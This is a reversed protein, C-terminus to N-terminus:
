GEIPTDQEVAIDEEAQGILRQTEAQEMIAVNDRILDYRQIGILDEVMKAMSKSSVHPAIMQGVPSNFLGTLNQMMQARAAFHRAGVPRLSGKATIDERTISIFREVGLDDDMVRVVDATDMNRRAVELMANLLPELFEVEFHTVKAQFIRGAANELTQVEHATKEGPTRIGMAQKPAGAFEEMMALLRDIQMDANLATTDPVLMQVDSGEMDLHIETGPQWNFPEVEGFVKLPPFAILDFVDAKLNELHDIRYQMGVLNALPSMGYLNDSRTRWSVHQKSGKGLWSPIIEKRIVYSRDIVTIVHNRLLTGTDPDHIDGEFEIIEVYPSQLYSYLNGFGDVSFSSAKEFDEASYPGHVATSRLQQAKQLAETYYGREPYDEADALLEGFTKLTRTMKYTDSFREAAPNMVFDNPSYRIARPGIYGPIEEGTVADERTENVFEVDGFVNGSDIYDYLYQSVVSRFRSERLKNSMYATIAEKKDGHNDEPSYGEWRLWDDNPFLAAMYNAHLNDRLQTLKPVTTSNKWPLNSNSTTRTDTAHIFDRLEELEVRWPKNQNRFDTYIQVINTALQHPDMLDRLEAVKGTM